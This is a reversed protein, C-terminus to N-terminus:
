EVAKIPRGRPMNEIEESARKCLVSCVAFCESKGISRGYLSLRVDTEILIQLM